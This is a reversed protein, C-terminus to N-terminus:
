TGEKESSSRVKFPAEEIEKEMDFERIMKFWTQTSENWHYRRKKADHRNAYSVEAVVKVLPSKAYKLVENIDYGSLIQLMVFVDHIARHRHEKPFYIGHDAALYRLSRSKMHIPYEIDSSTDIWLNEPFNLGHRKFEMQLIPRDFGNGNHACIADARRALEIFRCFVTVPAEACQRLFPRDLGHLKAAEQEIPLYDLDFICASDIKIPIDKETDYLVSAIEVVRCLSIGLGTTELDVGLILM